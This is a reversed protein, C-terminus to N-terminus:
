PAARRGRAPRVPMAATAVRHGAQRRFIALLMFGSLTFIEVKSRPKMDDDVHRWSGVLEGWQFAQGIGGMVQWALDSAGAGIGPEHCNSRTDGLNMCLVDAFAGCRGNSAEFSGM